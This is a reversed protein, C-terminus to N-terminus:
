SGVEVKDDGTEELNTRVNAFGTLSDTWDSDLGKM